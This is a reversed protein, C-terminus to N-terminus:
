DDLTVEVLILPEIEEQEENSPDPVEAGPDKEPIMEPPPAPPLGALDTTPM